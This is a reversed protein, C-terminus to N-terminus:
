KTLKWLTFGIEGAIMAAINYAFCGIIQGPDQYRFPNRGVFTTTIDFAWFFLAVAAGSHREKMGARKYDGWLAKTIDIVGNNPKNDLAYQKADEYETKAINPKKGRLTRAEMVQVLSSIAWSLWFFLNFPVTLWGLWGVWNQEYWPFLPTGQFMAQWVSDASLTTGIFFGIAGLIKTGGSGPTVFSSLIYAVFSVPLSILNIIWNALIEAYVSVSIQKDPKNVPHSSTDDDTKIGM